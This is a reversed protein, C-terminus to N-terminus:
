LHLLPNSLTLHIPLLLSLELLSLIGLGLGTLRKYTTQERLLDHRSGELRSTGEPLEGAFLCAKASFCASPGNM